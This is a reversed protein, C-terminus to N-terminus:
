KAELSQSPSLLRTYLDVLQGATRELDFLAVRALGADRLSAALSKDELVQQLVAALDDVRRPDVLLGADGAVEPLSTRDACVVPLGCAMAEAVPLGFGEYLSPMALVSAANYFYVLDEDPVQDLFLIHGGIGLDGALALLRQREQVFHAKGVKILRVDGIQRAVLALARLLTRLNKRPDESGVYLLHQCAPDLRYRDWFTQPVEVPRFRERDVGPHVVHIREPPLNLSHVLTDRTYHSIAVLADARRLGALALRYFLSELRHRATDLARDGRAAYPIIDLVTVLVPAPFRQLWLLTAMTQTTIHYIDASKLHARLPYSAFFAGLDIGLRKLGHAMSHLGPGLALFDLSVDLGAAELGRALDRAYRSTGTLTPDAKALLRV